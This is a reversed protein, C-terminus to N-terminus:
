VVAEGDRFREYLLVDVFGEGPVYQHMRLRGARIFGNSELIAISPRNTEYVSAYVKRLNLWEFAYSLALAVAETGYGKRWYEPGLFYGIEANRSQFDINHLGVLGVLHGQERTVIAFVKERVKNRRITEYWELEDEYFFVEHPQLLHRRVRRDNYWKWLKPIDERMLVSLAVRTGELVVPRM